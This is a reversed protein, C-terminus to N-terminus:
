RALVVTGTNHARQSPTMSRKAFQAIVAANALLWVVTEDLLTTLASL